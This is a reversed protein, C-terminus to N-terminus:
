RRFDEPGNGLQDDKINRCTLNMIGLSLMAFFYVISGVVGIIWGVIFGAYFYASLDKVSGTVAVEVLMGVISGILPFVNFLVVPVIFASILQIIGKAKSNM